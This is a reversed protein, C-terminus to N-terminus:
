SAVRKATLISLKNGATSFKCRFSLTYLTGPIRKKAKKTDTKKWGIKYNQINPKVCSHVITQNHNEPLQDFIVFRVQVSRDIVTELELSVLWRTGSSPIVM